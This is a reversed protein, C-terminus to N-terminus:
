TVPREAPPCAVQDQTVLPGSAALFNAAITGTELALATARSETGSTPLWYPTFLQCTQPSWSPKQGNTVVALASYLLPTGVGDGSAMTVGSGPTPWQPHFVTYSGEHFVFGSLGVPNFM